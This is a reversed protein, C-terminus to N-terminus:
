FGFLFVGQRLCRSTFPMVGRTSHCPGGAKGGRTGAGHRWFVSWLRWVHGRSRLDLRGERGKVGPCSASAPSVEVAASVVGPCSCPPGGGVLARTQRTLLSIEPVCGPPLLARHGAGRLPLIFYFLITFILFYFPLRARRFITSWIRLSKPKQYPTGQSGQGRPGRIEPDRKATAGGQAFNQIRAQSIEQYRGVGLSLITIQSIVQM